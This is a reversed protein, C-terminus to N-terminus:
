HLSDGRYRSPPAFASATAEWEDAAYVDALSLGSLALVYDEPQPLRDIWWYFPGPAVDASMRVRGDDLLEAGAERVRDLLSFSTGDDRLVRTFSPNAVVSLRTSPTLGRDRVM